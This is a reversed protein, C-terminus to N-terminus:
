ARRLEHLLRAAELDVQTDVIQHPGCQLHIRCGSLHLAGVEQLRSLDSRSLRSPLRPRSASGSGGATSGSSCTGESHLWTSIYRQVQLSSCATALQESLARGVSNPRPSRSAGQCFSPMDCLLRASISGANNQEGTDQKQGAINATRLRPQQRGQLPLRFVLLVPEDLLPPPPPLLKQGLV